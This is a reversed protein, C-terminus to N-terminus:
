REGGLEAHRNYLTRAGTETLGLATAIDRWTAGYERALAIYRIRTITVRSLDDAARQLYELAILRRDESRLKTRDDM